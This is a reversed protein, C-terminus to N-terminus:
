AAAISEIENNSLTRVAPGDLVVRQERVLALLEDRTALGNDMLARMYGDVLGQAHALRAHEGGRYRMSLMDKIMLKLDQLRQNKSHM